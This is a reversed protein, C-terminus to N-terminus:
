PKLIKLQQTTGDSLTTHLVYVGAPLHAMNIRETRPSDKYIIHGAADTILAQAINELNPLHVAADAASFYAAQEHAPSHHIGSTPAPTLILSAVEFKGTNAELKLTQKGAQLAIRATADIWKNRDTATVIHKEGQVTVAFDNKTNLPKCRISLDYEGAADIEIQYSTWRSGGWASTGEFEHLVLEPSNAAAQKLHTWEHADIYACAPINTGPTYYFEKDFSSMGVYIHGLETLEGEAQKLLQMYPSEGDKDSRGIFWAYRYVNPNTELYLVAEALLNRQMNYTIGSEWGCFETLWLPKGYKEFKPLYDKISGIYNMYCHVAIYDVRSEPRAAFFDDLYKFPDTYTVGNERVAGGTPAYNVAPGVIKLDFEDAIEEVLHWKAAAQTPTMNAEKTFNPENFGLLYKVHPNATLFDRLAKRDFQDNWLMPIFDLEYDDLVAKEAGTTQAWNYFWSIGPALVEIDKASALEYSLGRKYSRTQAHLDGGGINASLAAGVLLAM